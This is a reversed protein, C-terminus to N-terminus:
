KLNKGNLNSRIPILHEGLKCEYQHYTELAITRCDTSCFVVSSCAACYLPTITAAMCHSCHNAVTEPTLVSLVATDIAVIEGPLIKDKAM